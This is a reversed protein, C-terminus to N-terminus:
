EIEMTVDYSEGGKSVRAIMFGRFLLQFFSTFKDPKGTSLYDYYWVGHQYWCASVGRGNTEAFHIIAGNRLLGFLEADSMNELETYGKTM